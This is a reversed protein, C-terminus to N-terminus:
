RNHLRSGLAATRMQSQQWACTSCRETAADLTDAMTLTGLASCRSTRGSTSSSALSWQVGFHRIQAQSIVHDADDIPVTACARGALAETLPRASAKFNARVQVRGTGQASKQACRRRLRGRAGGTLSM